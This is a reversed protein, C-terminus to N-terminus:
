VFQEVVIRPLQQNCLTWYGRSRLSGWMQGTYNHRWLESLTIYCMMFCSENGPKGVESLRTDIDYPKSLIKWQILVTKLLTSVTSTTTSRGTWSRFRSASKTRQRTWAPPPARHQWLPHAPTAPPSAETIRGFGSGNASSLACRHFGFFWSKPGFQRRWSHMHFPVCWRFKKIFRQLRKLSPINWKLGYEQHPPKTVSFISPITWM